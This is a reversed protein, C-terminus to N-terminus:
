ARARSTAERGESRDRAADGPRSRGRGQTPAPERAAAGLAPEVRAQRAQCDDCLGYIELRHYRPRFNHTRALERQLVEIEGSTFEILKGCGECILHEHDAPGALYEYRKFGEGFDHERVLGAEILLDLTRYVTAKGVIVGEVRLRELIEDVGLHQHTSGLVDAIRLRQETVPLARDRLFRRFGEGKNTLTM